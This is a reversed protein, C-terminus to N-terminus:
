EVGDAKLLGAIHKTAGDLAGYSLEVDDLKVAIHDADREASKTLLEELNM